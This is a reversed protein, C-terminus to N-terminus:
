LNLMVQRAGRQRMYGHHFQALNEYGLPAQQCSQGVATSFVESDM